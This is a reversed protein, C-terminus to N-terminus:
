AEALKKIRELGSAMGAELEDDHGDQGGLFKGAFWSAFPASGEPMERTEVLRTGGDTPELRYTWVARNTQVRWSIESGPALRTIRSLTAWWLPGRRNFGILREGFRLVRRCEPSWEPTRRVDSVIRWVKEPAAAIEVDAQLTRATSAPMRTM